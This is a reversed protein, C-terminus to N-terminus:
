GAPYVANDSDSWILSDDVQQLGELSVTSKKNSENNGSQKAAPAPMECSNNLELPPLEGRRRKFFDIAVNPFIIYSLVDEEQEIYDAIEKKAEGLQPKLQDAPRGTIPEEGKLVQTLLEQNVEGPPQGYLGRLYNKIETSVM